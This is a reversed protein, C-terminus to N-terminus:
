LHLDVGQSLGRPAPRVGAGAAAGPARDASRRGASVPPGDAGSSSFARGSGDSAGGSQQQPAGQQSPPQDSVDLRTGDLGAAALDSRLVGLSARLAERTAANGALLQLSVTGDDMTAVVQVAGLDAPHLHVTLRQVSGAAGGRAAAVLRGTLQAQVAQQLWPPTSAPGTPASTSALAPLGSATTAVTGSGVHGASSLTPDTARAPGTSPDTALATTPTAAGPAVVPGTGTGAAAASAPSATAATAGPGSGPGGTKDGVTVTLGALAANGSAPSAAQGPVNAAASTPGVVGVPDLNTAAVSTGPGNLVTAGPASTSAALGHSAATSTATGSTTGSTTSAASGAVATSGAGNVTAAALAEDGTATAVKTADTTQTASPGAGSTEGTGPGTPTTASTTSEAPARESSADAATESTHHAARAKESDAGARDHTRRPGADSRERADRLSREFARAEPASGDTRTGGRRGGVGTSADATGTSPPLMQAIM